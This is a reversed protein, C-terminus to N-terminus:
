VVQRADITEGRAADRIRWRPIGLDALQENSMRNLERLTARYTRYDEFTKKLTM